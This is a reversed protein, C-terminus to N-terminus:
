KGSVVSEAAGQNKLLRNRKVAMQLRRQSSIFDLWFKDRDLFSRKKNHQPL